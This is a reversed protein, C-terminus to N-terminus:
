SARFFLLAGTRDAEWNQFGARRAAAALRRSHPPVFFGSVRAAAVAMNWPMPADETLVTGILQGGRRLVRRFERLVGGHRPICHLSNFCVIRDVSSSRLPLCAADARVLALHRREEAALSDRRAAARSLMMASLDAAVVLGRTRPLGGAFAVGGGTPCDLVFEGRECELASDMLRRMREIDAGWLLAGGLPAWSSQVGADYLAGYWSEFAWRQLGSRPPSDSKM